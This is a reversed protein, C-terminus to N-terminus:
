NLVKKTSFTSFKKRNQLKLRIDGLGILLILGIILLILGFIMGFLGCKSIRRQIPTQIKRLLTRADNTEPNM